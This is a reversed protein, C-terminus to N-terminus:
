QRGWMFAILVLFSVLYWLTGVGAVFQSPLNMCTLINYPAAVVGYVYKLGPASKVWSLINNFIDTFINTDDSPSVASGQPDPLHDIFDNDVVSVNGSRTVTNDIISGDLNYCVPGDPNVTLMSIQSFWMLINVLVIVITATTLNSM